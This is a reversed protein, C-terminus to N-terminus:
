ASQTSRCPAAEEPLSVNSVFFRAGDAAERGTKRLVPAGSGAAKQPRVTFGRGPGTKRSVFRSSM